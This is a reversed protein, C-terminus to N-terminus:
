CKDENYSSVYSVRDILILRSLEDEGEGIPGGGKEVEVSVEGMKVDVRGRGRVAESETTEM